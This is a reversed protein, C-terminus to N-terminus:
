IYPASPWPLASLLCLNSVVSQGEASRPPIGMGRAVVACADSDIHPQVRDQSKFLARCCDPVTQNNPISYLLHACLFTTPTTTTLQSNWNLNLTSQPPMREEEGYPYVFMCVLLGFYHTSSEDGWFYSRRVDGARGLNNGDTLLSLSQCTQFQFSSLDVKVPLRHLIATVIDTRPYQATNV